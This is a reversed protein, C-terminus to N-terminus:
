APALNRELICDMLQRLEARYAADRRARAAASRGRVLYRALLAHPARTLLWQRFQIWKPDREGYVARAVWCIMLKAAGLTGIAGIGAGILSGWNNATAIRAAAEANYNTNYLDAAYPNFPDFMGRAQAASAGATGVANGFLAQNSGANSSSRGLVGLFPDTYTSLRAQTAALQRGFQEGRRAAEMQAARDLAARDADTRSANFRATDLGLGARSLAFGRDASQGSRLANNAALAFSRRGEARAQRASATNLIEDALAANSFGRGRADAAARSQVRVLRAEDASLQDGLSLDALAQRQLEAEIASPNASDLDAPLGFRESRAAAAANFLGEYLGPDIGAAAMQDLRDMAGFLEPNAARQAATVQGGLRQVDALDAERQATNASRSQAAAEDTLRRNIDSLTGSFDDGFLSRGLIDLDAQAYGPATRQYAALQEPALRIQTALTDGAEQAINRPPPAEITTKGM